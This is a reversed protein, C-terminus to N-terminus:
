FIWVNCETATAYRQLLAATMGNNHYWGPTPLGVMHGMTFYMLVLLFGASAIIRIKMERLADEAPAASPKQGAHVIGYGAQVVAKEILASVDETATVTLKGALLNVEAKKVGPIAAAVKEVRASCAACTMGSVSFSLKM